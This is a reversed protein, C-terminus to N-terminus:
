NWFIKDYLETIEELSYKNFDDLYMWCYGGSSRRQFKCCKGVGSKNLNLEEAASNISPFVKIFEFTDPKLQVIPTKDLTKRDTIFSPKDGNYREKIEDISMNKYDEELVWAYGNASKRGFRCCRIIGDYGTKKDMDNAQAAEVISSYREILAFNNKDLKVVPMTYKNIKKTSPNINNIKNHLEKIEDLTMSDFDEALLWIYGKATRRTFKCCKIIADYGNKNDLGNVRAAENLSPYTNIVEYTLKDLQVIPM